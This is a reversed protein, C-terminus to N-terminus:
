KGTDAAVLAPKFEHPPRSTSSAYKTAADVVDESIGHAILYTAMKAADVRKSGKKVQLWVTVHEGEFVPENTGPERPSAEHDFIIGVEIAAQKAAKLRAGAQANLFYAVFYEWAIPSTNDGKKTQPMRSEGTGIANFATNVADIIRNRTRQTLSM